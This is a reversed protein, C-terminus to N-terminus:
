SSEEFKNKNLANNRGRQWKTYNKFAIEEPLFIVYCFDFISEFESKIKWVVLCYLWLILQEWPLIFFILVLFCFILLSSWLLVIDSLPHPVNIFFNRRIYYKCQPYQVYYLHKFLYLRYHRDQKHKELNLNFDGSEIRPCMPQLLLKVTFYFIELLWGKLGDSWIILFYTSCILM